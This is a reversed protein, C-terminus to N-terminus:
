FIRDGGLLGGLLDGGLGAIGKSEGRNSGAAAIIRGALRSLPLSQLYVHGPGTLKALFMDEGGFLGRSM